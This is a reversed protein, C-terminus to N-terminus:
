QRARNRFTDYDFGSAGEKEIAMQRLIRTIVQQLTLIIGNSCGGNSVEIYLPVEQEWCGSRVKLMWKKNGADM